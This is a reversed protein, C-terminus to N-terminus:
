RVHYEVGDLDEFTVNNTIDVSSDEDVSIGHAAIHAIHTHSLSLPSNASRLTIAGWPTENGGAYSIISNSISCNYAGEYYNFGDWDGKNPAPSNSTFLIPNEPSGNAMVSATHDGWYAIDLQSNVMFQMIVGPEITLKVGNGPAGIRMTGEVIYPATQKTWTYDGAINLDEDNAILIGLDTNIINEGIISHVFNPYISIPYLLNGLFINGGFNSFYANEHLMLATSQSYYFECNLFAVNSNKLYVMGHYDDAGGFEFISFEFSCNNAGEYFALGDWDGAAPSPSASSFLIPEEMTGEAIITAYQDGWYAIDWLGDEMFLIETGPAIHVISGEGAAGFRITGEQYFPVGQDTWFYEGQLSFDEDNEIWIGSATEYVNDGTISHVNNIYVSIPYSSINSFFNKDFASFAGESKMRIGVNDAERVISNTFAIATEKIYVSGFTENSGAYEIIAFNINCDAAGNYFHLGAWDGSSPNAKASTFLVPLAATGLVEITAYENDWYAFELSSGETFKIISGAEFTLKANRVRITGDFTYAIGTKFVMDNSIDGTLEGGEAIIPDETEKECAILSFTFAMILLYFMRKTMLNTKQTIQSNNNAFICAIPLLIM